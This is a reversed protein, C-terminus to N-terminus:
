QSPQAASKSRRIIVPLNEEINGDIGISQGVQLEFTTNSFNDTGRLVAGSGDEGDIIELGHNELFERESEVDIIEGNIWVLLKGTKKSRFISGISINEGRVSQGEVFGTIFRAIDDSIIDPTAIEEPIYVDTDVAGERLADLIKRQEPAFFLPPMDPRPAPAASFNAAADSEASQAYAMGATGVVSAAVLLALLFAFAVARVM